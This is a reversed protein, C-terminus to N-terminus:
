HLLKVLEASILRAGDLSLHDDDRYLVKDEKMALCQQEDCLQAAADFIKVSPYDRLISLILNRYERNREDFDKRPIACPTKIRNTLRLPRSDICSKPDFGLEPNDFVFIVNKTKTLTNLTSRMASEYIVYHDTLDPNAPSTLVWDYETEAAFDNYSFGKSSLYLPGRAALIVTKISESGAAIEIAQATIMLCNENKDKRDYSSTNLLPPCGGTGIMLINESTDMLADRLGPYLSVGHSDGIIQVTPAENKALRCYGDIKPNFKEKCWPEQNEPLWPTNKDSFIENKAMMEKIEERFPLGDRSYTYYGTYGIFAALVCLTIVKYSMTQGFRIPKEILYYTLAALIFSLIVASVRISRPPTDSEIIRAFSLIPWHWLYLPYSILGIWIMAKNALLKRNVYAQPGVLILLVAGAVPALAAPGPFLM